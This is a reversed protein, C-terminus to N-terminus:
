RAGSVLSWPYLGVNVKLLMYTLGEAGGSSAHAVNPPISLVDGARVAYDRGGRIPGLFEGPRDAVARRDPMEGGVTVTGNGGLVFYIDTVGEHQEGVPPESRQPRHVVNFFHTRTFPM